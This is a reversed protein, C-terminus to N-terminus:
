ALTGDAFRGIGDRCPGAGRCLIGPCPPRDRRRVSRPTGCGRPRRFDARRTRDSTPPSAGAAGAAGRPGLAVTRGCLLWRLASAGSAAGPAEPPRALTERLLTRATVVVQALRREVSKLVGDLSDRVVVLRDRLPSRRRASTGFDFINPASCPGRRSPRYRRSRPRGPRSRRRHGLGALPGGILNAHKEQTRRQCRCALQRPAM